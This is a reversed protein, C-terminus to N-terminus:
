FQIVIKKATKLKSEELKLYKLKNSIKVAVLKVDRHMILERKGKNYKAM